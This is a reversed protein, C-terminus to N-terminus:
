SSIQIWQDKIKCFFRRLSCHFCLLLIMKLCNNRWLTVVKSYSHNGNSLSKQNFCRPIQIAPNAQEVTWTVNKEFWNKQFCMHASHTLRLLLQKIREPEYVSKYSHDEQSVNSNSDLYYSHKERSNIIQHVFFSEM